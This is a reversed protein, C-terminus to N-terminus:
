DLYRTVAARGDSYKEVHGGFPHDGCADLLEENSPWAGEVLTVEHTKSAGSWSDPPFVRVCAEGIKVLRSRNRTDEEVTALFAEVESLTFRERYRCAFCQIEPLERPLGREEGDINHYNCLRDMRSRRSLILDKRTTM